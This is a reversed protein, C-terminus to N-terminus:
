EKIRRSKKKRKLSRLVRNGMGNRPIAHDSHSVEVIGTNHPSRKAKKSKSLKVESRTKQAKIKRKKEIYM